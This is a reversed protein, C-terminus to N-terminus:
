KRWYENIEEITMLRDSYYPKPIGDIGIDTKYLNDKIEYIDHGGYKIIPVKKYSRSM